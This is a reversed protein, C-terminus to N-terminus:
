LFENLASAFDLHGGVLEPYLPAAESVAVGLDLILTNGALHDGIEIRLKMCFLASRGQSLIPMSDGFRGRKEFVRVLHSSALGFIADALEVERQINDPLRDFVM